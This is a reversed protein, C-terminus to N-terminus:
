GLVEREAERERVLTDQAHAFQAGLEIKSPCVWTCLGCRVCLDVRLREAEELHDAYLAKHILHPMIGAPCIEECFGCAVCPRGEGRVATTLREPRSRRLASLFCRSYSRRDAGPRLFGLFERQDHEPLVTIGACEADIGRQQPPITTGRLVGGNLLRVPGSSLRGALLAELPYGPIAKLHTPERVGPGGLSILRVTAPRSLTLARDMALVAATSLAWVPEKPRWALGLHRAVVAPHDLGYVLPVPVVKIWAYGRLHERVLAGLDSQVTPVGLYIPQYELQSQVHELGRTFATLRKRTQVDGRALFPERHVLSVIVARPTGLPDPLAGTHADQVAQWAGLMLLKYRTIGVSGTTRARHAAEEDPHYPEEPVKEVEELVIHGPLAELRVTGARPALLPVGYNGPDVALVHGPKVRQGEACRVESFTFRRSTLPLYLTDAEPLPEVRPAPRGTLPIDYGGRWKM